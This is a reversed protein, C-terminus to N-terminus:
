AKEATVILRPSGMQYPEGSVSALLKAPELGAHSLMRCLESVTFVYSSSPRSDVLGNRVFTYQIDL